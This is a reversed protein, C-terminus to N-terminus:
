VSSLKVLYRTSLVHGMPLTADCRSSQRSTQHSILRCGREFIIFINFVAFNLWWIPVPTRCFHHAFLRVLWLMLQRSSRCCLSWSIGLKYTMHPRSSQMAWVPQFINLVLEMYLVIYFLYVVSGACCDLDVVVLSLLLEFYWSCKM